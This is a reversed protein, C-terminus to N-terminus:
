FERRCGLLQNDKYIEHYLANLEPIEERCPGCWEAWYNVVVWKGVLM